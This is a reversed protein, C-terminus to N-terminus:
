EVPEALEMRLRDLEADRVRLYDLVNSRDIVDRELAALMVASTRHGVEDLRKRVRDRGEGGGGRPKADHLRPLGSFLGWDAVGHEILRLAAAQLSVHFTRSVRKAIPLMAEAGGQPVGAEDLLAALSEDPVLIRAAVRECWREEPDSPNRGAGSARDLCASDTRSLLHALEHMLSYNRAQANWWTNVAILPAHPEWVSFGRCASEGM